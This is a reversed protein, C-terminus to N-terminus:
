RNEDARIRRIHELPVVKTEDGEKMTVTVMMHPLQEDGDNDDDVISADADIDDIPEVDDIEVAAVKRTLAKRAEGPQNICIGSRKLKELREKVTLRPKDSFFDEDFDALDLDDADNADLPEKKISSGM